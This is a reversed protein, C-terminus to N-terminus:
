PRLAVLHQSKTCLTETVRLVHDSGVEKNSCHLARKLSLEKLQCARYCTKLILGQLTHSVRQKPYIHLKSILATVRIAEQPSTVNSM